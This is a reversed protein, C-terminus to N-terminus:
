VTKACAPDSERAPLAVFFTTGIDAQSEFWIRGNHREVIRRAVALGIGNGQASKPHLRQFPQFVKSHLQSPIGSGNDRVFCTTHSNLRTSLHDIDPQAITGIEIKLPREPDAYHLANSLLQSFVEGLAARDGRVPPLDKMVIIAAARAIEESRAAVIEGFLEGLDILEVKYSAHGVRSLKLLATLMDSLDTVAKQIYYLSEGIEGDLIAEGRQRLSQPVEAHLLIERIDACSHSLVQSFGQLNVLPSRLDHAVSCIFQRNERNQELLARAVRELEAAPEAVRPELDKSALQQKREIPTQESM